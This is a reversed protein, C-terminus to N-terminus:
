CWVDMQWCLLIFSSYVPLQNFCVVFVEVFKEVVCRFLWLGWLEIADGVNVFCM